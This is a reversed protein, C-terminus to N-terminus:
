AQHRVTGDFRVGCDYELLDPLKIDSKWKLYFPLLIAVYPLPITTFRDSHDMVLDQTTDTSVIIM